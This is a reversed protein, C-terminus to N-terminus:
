HEEIKTQGCFRNSVNPVPPPPGSSSSGVLLVNCCRAVCETGPTGRAPDRGAGESLPSLVMCVEIKRCFNKESISKRNPSNKRQYTHSPAHFIEKLMFWEFHLKSM